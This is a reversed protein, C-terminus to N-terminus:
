KIINKYFIIKLIYCMISMLRVYILKFLYIFFFFFNLIKIKLYNININLKLIFNRIFKECIKSDYNYVKLKKFNFLRFYTLLGKIRLLNNNVKEQSEVDGIDLSLKLM